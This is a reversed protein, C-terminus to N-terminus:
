RFSIKKARQFWKKRTNESVGAVSQNVKGDLSFKNTFLDQMRTLWLPNDPQNTYAM